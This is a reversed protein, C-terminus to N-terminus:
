TRAYRSQVPLDSGLLLEDLRLLDQCLGDVLSSVAFLGAGLPVADINDAM